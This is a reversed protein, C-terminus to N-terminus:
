SEGRGLWSGTHSTCWGAVVNVRAQPHGPGQSPRGEGVRIPWSSVKPRQTDIGAGGGWCAPRQTFTYTGTPCAQTAAASEEGPLQSLCLWNPGLSLKSYPSGPPPQRGNAGPSATNRERGVVRSGRRTAARGGAAEDSHRRPNQPSVCGGPGGPATVCARHAAVPGWKARGGRGQVHWAPGDSGERLLPGAKLRAHLKGPRKQMPRPLGGSDSRSAAGPPGKRRDPGAM